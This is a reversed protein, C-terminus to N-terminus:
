EAKIEYDADIVEVKPQAQQAAKRFVAEGGRRNVDIVTGEVWKALKAPELRPHWRAQTYTSDLLGREKLFRQCEQAEEAGTIGVAELEGRSPNKGALALQAAAKM